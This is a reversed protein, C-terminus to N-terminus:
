LLKAGQSRRLMLQSMALYIMTESSSISKEYDRALRRYGNFWAFTREVIWRKPTIVVERNRKWHKKELATKKRGQGTKERRKILPLFKFRDYFKDEFTGRYGMDANMVGLVQATGSPIKDIIKAGEKPDSLNAAHIHIAHILGMTDVLIQRKRGRVRKFGDYGLAEGSSARVSQSDIILYSPQEQKGACERTCKRLAEHV